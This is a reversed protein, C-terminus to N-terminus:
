VKAGVVKNLAKFAMELRVEAGGYRESMGGSSHGLVLNRDFESVGARTLKDEMGHRLSHVTHKPNESIARLHKM